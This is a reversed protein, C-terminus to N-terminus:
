AKFFASIQKGTVILYTISDRIVGYLSARGSLLEPLSGGIAGVTELAKCIADGIIECIKSLIMYLIKVLLYILAKKLAYFLLSLIDSIKPWMRFPNEMRVSVIDMPHKCFPLALSKIFDMIGPNFLPPTPCDFLAIVASILQAGPFGSLHDLLALMNDEYVEILALVYAELVVSPDLGSKESASPGRIKEALTRREQKSRSQVM